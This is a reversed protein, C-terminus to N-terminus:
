EESIVPDAKLKNRFIIVATLASAVISICLSLPDRNIETLFDKFFVAGASAIMFTVLFVIQFADPWAKVRILFLSLLMAILLIPISLLFSFLVSAYFVIIITGNVENLPLIICLTSLGGNLASAFFWIGAYISMIRLYKDM